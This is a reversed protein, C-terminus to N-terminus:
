WTGESKDKSDREWWKSEKKPPSLDFFTISEDETKRHTNRAIAIIAPVAWYAVMGIVIGLPAPYDRWPQAAAKGVSQEIIGAVLPSILPTLAFSVTFGIVVRTLFEGLSRAPYSAHGLLAGLAGFTGFGNTKLWVILWM